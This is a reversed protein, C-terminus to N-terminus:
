IELESLLSAVRTQLNKVVGVQHHVQDVLLSSPVYDPQGVTNEVQPSSNRVAALRQELEAVLGSLKDLQEGQENLARGFPPTNQKVGSVLGAAANMPAQTEEYM